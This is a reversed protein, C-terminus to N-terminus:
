EHPPNPRQGQGGASPIPTRWCHWVLYATGVCICSDALNFTPWVPGEPLHFDLFDRVAGERIRDALNGVAGGLIAGASLVLLPRGGTPQGFTLWFLFVIALVSAAVFFLPAWSTDQFLGWLGGPNRRAVLNFFGPIVEIHRLPSGAIRGFVVDKSVQDAVAVSLATLFFFPARKYPNV